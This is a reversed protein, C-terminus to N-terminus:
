YIGNKLQNETVSYATLTEYNIDFYLIPLDDCANLNNNILIFTFITWMYINFIKKHYLLIMLIINNNNNNNKNIIYIYNKKKCIIEEEITNFTNDIKIIPCITM